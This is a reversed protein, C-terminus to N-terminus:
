VRVRQQLRHLVVEVGVGRGDGLWDAAAVAVLLGPLLWLAEGLPIQVSNETFRVHEGLPLRSPDHASLAALYDDMHQKLCAEGCAGPATSNEAGAATGLLCLPMLLRLLVAPAIKIWKM